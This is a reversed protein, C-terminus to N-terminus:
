REPKKRRTLVLGGRGEKASKRYKRKSMSGGRCLAGTEDTAAWAEETTLEAAAAAVETAAEDPPSTKPDSGEPKEEISPRTASPDDPRARVPAEVEDEEM